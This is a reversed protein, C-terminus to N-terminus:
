SELLDRDNFKMGGRKYTKSSLQLFNTFFKQNLTPKPTNQRLLRIIHMNAFLYPEFIIKNVSLTIENLKAKLFDHNCFKTLTGKNLHVENNKENKSIHSITIRKKRVM